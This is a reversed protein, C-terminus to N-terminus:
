LVLLLKPSYCLLSFIQMIGCSLIRGNASHINMIRRRRQRPDLPQHWQWSGAAPVHRLGIAEVLLVRIIYNVLNWEGSLGTVLPRRWAKRMTHAHAHTVCSSCCCCSCVGTMRLDLICRSVSFVFSGPLTFILQPQYNQLQLQLEAQIKQAM